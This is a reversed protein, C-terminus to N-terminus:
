KNFKEMVDPKNTSAVCDIKWGDPGKIYIAVWSFETTGRIKQNDQDQYTAIVIKNVITYAMTSDASFRVIPPALDEWKEFEVFDFYATFREINEKQTTHVIEGRNVQICSDTMLEAFEQAMKELHYKQQLKHLTLIQDLNSSGQLYYSQFFVFSATLYKWM